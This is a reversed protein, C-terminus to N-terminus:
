SRPGSSTRRRNPTGIRTATQRFPVTVAGRRVAHRSRRPIPLNAHSRGGTRRRLSLPSSISRLSLVTRTAPRPIDPRLMISTSRERAARTIPTSSCLGSASRCENSSMSQSEASMTMVDGTNLGRVGNMRSAWRRPMGTYLSTSSAHRSRTSLARVPRGAGHTPMVPVFPLVDVVSIVEAMSHASPRTAGATPLMPLATDWAATSGSLSASHTSSLENWSCKVSESASSQAAIVFM